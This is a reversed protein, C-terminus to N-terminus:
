SKAQAVLVYGRCHLVANAFQLVHQDSPRVTVESVTTQLRMDSFFIHALSMERRTNLIRPM